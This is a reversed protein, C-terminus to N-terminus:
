LCILHRGVAGCSGRLVVVVVAAMTAHVRGFLARLRLFLTSKIINPGAPPPPLVCAEAIVFVCVSGRALPGAASLRAGHALVAGCQEGKEKLLPSLCTLPAGAADNLVEAEGETMLTGGGGGGGGLSPLKSGARSPAATAGKVGGPYPLSHEYTNFSGILM